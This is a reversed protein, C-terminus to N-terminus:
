LLVYVNNNISFTNTINISYYLLRPFIGISLFIFILDLLKNILTATTRETVEKTNEQEGNAGMKREKSLEM